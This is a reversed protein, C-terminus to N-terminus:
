HCRRMARWAHGNREEKNYTMLRKVASERAEPACDASILPFIRARRRCFCRPAASVVAPNPSPAAVPGAGPRAPACRGFGGRLSELSASSTRASMRLPWQAMRTVHLSRLCAPSASRSMKQLTHPSVAGSSQIPSSRVTGGLLLGIGRSARLSEQTSHRTRLASSLRTGSSSAATPSNTSLRQMPLLSIQQCSIPYGLSVHSPICPLPFVNQPPPLLPPTRLPPSRFLSWGTPSHCCCRVDVLKKACAAAAAADPLWLQRGPLLPREEWPVAAVEESARREAAANYEDKTNSHRGGGGGAAAAARTATRRRGDDDGRMM